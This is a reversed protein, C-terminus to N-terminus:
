RYFWEVPYIRLVAEQKNLKQDAVGLLPTGRSYRVLVHDGIVDLNPYHIPGHAARERGQDRGDHARLM